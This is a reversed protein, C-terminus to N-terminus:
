DCTSIIEDDQIVGIQQIQIGLNGDILDQYSIIIPELNEKLLRITGDYYFEIGNNNNQLKLPAESHPNLILEGFSLNSYISYYPYDKTLLIEVKKQTTDILQTRTSSIDEKKRGKMNFTATTEEAVVYDVVEEEGLSASIAITSDNNVMGTQLNSTNSLEELVDYGERFLLIPQTYKYEQGLEDIAQVSLMPVYQDITAELLNCKLQNGDMYLERYGCGEDFPETTVSGTKKWYKITYNISTISTKTGLLSYSWDNADILYEGNKKRYIIKPGILILNSDTAVPVPILIHEKKENLYHATAKYLVFSTYENQFMDEQDLTTYFTLKINNEVSSLNTVLVRGGSASVSSGGARPGSYPEITFYPFIQDPYNLFTLQNTDPDKACVVCEFNHNDDSNPLKKPVIAFQSFSNLPKITLNENTQFLNIYGNNKYVIEDSAAIIQHNYFIIIKIKTEPQKKNLIIPITGKGLRTKNFYEKNNKTITNPILNNMFDYSSSEWKKEGLLMNETDLENNSTCLYVSLKNDFGDLDWTPILQLKETEKNQNINYYNSLLTIYNDLHTNNINDKTDFLFFMFDEVKSYYNPISQTNLKFGYTNYHQIFSNDNSLTTIDQTFYIELKKIKELFNKIEEVAELLSYLHNHERVFNLNIQSFDFTDKQMDYINKLMMEYFMYFQDFQEFEINKNIYFNDSQEQLLKKVESFENIKKNHEVIAKELIDIYGEIHKTDTNVTVQHKELYKDITSKNYNNLYITKNPYETHLAIYQKYYALSLRMASIVVSYNKCYDTDKWQNSIGNDRPYDNRIRGQADTYLKFHEAHEFILGIGESFRVNDDIRPWYTKVWDQQYQYIVKYFWKQKEPDSSVGWFSKIGVNSKEAEEMPLIFDTYFNSVWNSYETEVVSLSSIANNILSLLDDKKEWYQYGQLDNPCGETTKAIEAQENDQKKDLYQEEDILDDPGYPSFGLFQKTDSDQNYWLFDIFQNEDGQYNGYALNSYPILKIGTHQEWDYAHGLVLEFEKWNAKFRKIINNNSNIFQEEKPQCLYVSVYRLNKLDSLQIIFDQTLGLPNYPQGSMDKTSIFYQQTDSDLYECCIKLKFSGNIIVDNLNIFDYIYKVYLSNYLDSDSELITDINIAYRVLLQEINRGNNLEIEGPICSYQKNNVLYLPIFYDSAKNYIIKKYSGAEYLGEIVKKANYNGNPITVRVLQDKEYQEPIDSDDVVNMELLGCKVKYKCYKAESDDIVECIKTINYGLDKVNEDVITTVTEFIQEKINNQQQQNKAM